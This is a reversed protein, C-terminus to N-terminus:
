RKRDIVARTQVTSIGFTDRTMFFSTFLYFCRHFGAFARTKQVSVPASCKFM